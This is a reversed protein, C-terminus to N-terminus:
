GDIGGLLRGVEELVKWNEAIERLVEEVRKHVTEECIRSNLSEAIRKARAVEERKGEYEKELGKQRNVQELVMRQLRAMERVRNEHHVTYELVASKLLDGEGRGGGSMREHVQRKVGRWVRLLGERRGREGRIRAELEGCKEEYKGRFDTM